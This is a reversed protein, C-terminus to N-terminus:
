TRLSSIVTIRFVICSRIAPVRRLISCCSPEECSVFLSLFSNLSFSSSSSSISEDPTAANTLNSRTAAGKRLPGRERTSLLKAQCGLVHLSIRLCSQMGSEAVSVEEFPPSKNLSRPPSVPTTYEFAGSPSPAGGRTVPLVRSVSLCIADKFLAHAFAMSESFTAHLPVLVTNCSTVERNCRGRYRREGRCNSEASRSISHRHM